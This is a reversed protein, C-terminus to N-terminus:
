VGGLWRLRKKTRVFASRFTGYSRVRDRYTVDWGDDVGKSILLDYDDDHERLAFDCWCAYISGFDDEIKM